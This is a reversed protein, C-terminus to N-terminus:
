KDGKQKRFMQKFRELWNVGAAQRAMNLSNSRYAAATAVSGLVKRNQYFSRRSRQKHKLAGAM